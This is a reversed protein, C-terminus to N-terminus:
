VEIAPSAYMDQQDNQKQTHSAFSAWSPWKNQQLLLAPSASALLLSLSCTRLTNNNQL